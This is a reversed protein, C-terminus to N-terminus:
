KSKFSTGRSQKTLEKGDRCYSETNWVPGEGAEGMSSAEGGGVM